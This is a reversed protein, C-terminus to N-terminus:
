GGSILSLAQDVEEIHYGRLSRRLSAAGVLAVPSRGADVEKAVHELLVDVDDINYGRLAQRFKLDRIEKGTM